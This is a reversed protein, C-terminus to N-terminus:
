AHTGLNLCVLEGLSKFMKTPELFRAHRFKPVRHILIHDSISSIEAFM